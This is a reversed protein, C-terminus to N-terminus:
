ALWSNRKVFGLGGWWGALSWDLGTKADQLGLLILIYILHEDFLPNNAPPFIAAWMLIFLVIGAWCAIRVAVGLLLCAGILLLGLMFAWDVWAHGSLSHFSSALTGHAASLFGATPSAGNVWAHGPKTAYGYGYLKDFFAWLMTLALALRLGAWVYPHRDRSASAM